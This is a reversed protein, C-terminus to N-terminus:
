TRSSGASEPAYRILIRTGDAFGDRMRDRWNGIEDPYKTEFRELLRDLLKADRTISAKATFSPASRLAHNRGMTRKWRGHDGVWIRARDLGRGLSRTKWTTAKTIIVVAGDIWGYWVEGHCRSEAGDSGLPSIYVYRSKALERETEPALALRRFPRNQGPRTPLPTALAPHRPRAFIATPFLLLGLGAGLLGRRHILHGLGRGGRRYPHRM